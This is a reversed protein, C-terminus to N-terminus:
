APKRREDEDFRNDHDKSTVKIVTQRGADTLRIGTERSLQWRCTKIL